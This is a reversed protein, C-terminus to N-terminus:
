KIKFWSKLLSIEKKTLKEHNQSLLFKYYDDDMNVKHIKRKKIFSRQFIFIVIVLNDDNAMKLAEKFISLLHKLKNEYGATYKQSNIDKLKTFLILDDIKHIHEVAHRIVLKDDILLIYSEENENKLFTFSEKENMNTMLYWLTFFDDFRCDFINHYISKIKEFQNDFGDNKIIEKLYNLQEQNLVLIKKM